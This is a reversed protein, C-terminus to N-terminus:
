REKLPVKEFGPNNCNANLQEFVPKGVFMTYIEDAKVPDIDEFRDSYM